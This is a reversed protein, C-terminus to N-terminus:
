LYFFINETTQCRWAFVVIWALFLYKVKKDYYHFRSNMVDDVNWKNPLVIKTISKEILQYISLDSNNCRKLYM